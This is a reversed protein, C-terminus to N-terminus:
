IVHEENIGYQQTSRQSTSIATLNIRSEDPTTSEKDTKKKKRHHQFKGVAMFDDNGHAM